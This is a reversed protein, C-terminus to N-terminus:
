TFLGPAIARPEFLAPDLVDLGMGVAEAHAIAIGGAHGSPDDEGGPDLVGQRVHRIDLLGDTLALHPQTRDAVAVLDVPVIDGDVALCFVRDAM